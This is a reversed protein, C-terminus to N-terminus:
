TRRDALTVCIWPWPVRILKSDIKKVPVRIVRIPKRSPVRIM